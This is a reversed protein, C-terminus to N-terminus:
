SQGLDDWQFRKGRSMGCRRPDKLEGVVAVIGEPATGLSPNGGAKPLNLLGPHGGCFRAGPRPGTPRIHFGDWSLAKWFMADLSGSSFPAFLM